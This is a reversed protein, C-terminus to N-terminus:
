YCHVLWKLWLTLTAFHIFLWSGVIHERYFVCKLDFVCIPQFHFSLSLMVLCVTVFYLQLPWGLESLISKLVFVTVLLLSHCKIVIFPHSWLSSKITIFIYVGLLLGRFRILCFPVSNFLSIPCEYIITPFKLVGNEFTFLDVWWFILLSVFIESLLIFWSSRVSM